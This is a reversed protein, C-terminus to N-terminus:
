QANSGNGKLMKICTEILGRGVTFQPILMLRETPEPELEEAEERASQMRNVILHDLTLDQDSSNLLDFFDGADCMRILVSPKIHEM